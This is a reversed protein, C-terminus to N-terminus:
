IDLLLMRREYDTVATRAALVTQRGYNAYHQQFTEGFMKRVFSSNTFAEVAEDLTQPLRPADAGEYANGVVPDGLPELRDEIGKIGAALMASYALYPNVDAGPIRNEIRRANGSGVLRFAVTRNDEGWTVTDPAFTGPRLRKYSNTNPAFFLFVDRVFHTMGALFHRMIDSSESGDSGSSFASKGAEDELSMHIHCSSGGLTHDLKAMFSAVLGQQLAIEKAAYKLLMHDDAAKIAEAYKLIVEVQSASYEAKFMEVAVGAAELHTRLPGLYHEDESTRMLTEPHLTQHKGKLNVFGKEFVSDPTEKLIYFELESVFNAKLGLGHLRENMSKLLTRPGVNVETGDADIVDGMVFATKEFWPYLTLTSMDPRVLMNPYGNEWSSLEYGEDLSHDHGWTLVVSCTGVGNKGAEIFHRATMRKAVLRGQMDPTAVIVTEIENAKVLGELEELQM